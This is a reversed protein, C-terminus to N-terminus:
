FIRNLDAGKNSDSVDREDALDPARDYSYEAIETGMLADAFEFKVAIAMAKRMLMIKTFKTWPSDANLSGDRLRAPYQGAKKAEEITYTFEKQERGKRQIVCIGAYPAEDLNKNELCIKKHASDIAYTHKEKVEGTWEALASPLEGFMVLQNKIFALNPLALQWKKGVLAHALNYAALRKQPTDFRAPFGGGEGIHKIMAGLEVANVPALDGKVLGIPQPIVPKVEEKPTQAETEM